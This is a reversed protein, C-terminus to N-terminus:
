RTCPWPGKLPVYHVWPLMRDYFFERYAQARPLPLPTVISAALSPSLSLPFSAVAVDALFPPFSPHPHLSFSVPQTSLLDWADGVFSKRWGLELVLRVSLWLRGGMGGLLPLWSTAIALGATERTGM